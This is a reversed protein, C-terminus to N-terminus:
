PASGASRAAADRAAQVQQRSREMTQKFKGDLVLAGIAIFRGLWDRGGALAPPTMQVDHDTVVAWGTREIEGILALVQTRSLDYRAAFAKRSFRRTDGADLGRRLLELNLLAGGKLTQSREVTMGSKFAAGGHLTALLFEQSWARCQDRAPRTEAFAAGPLVMMGLFDDVLAAGDGSLRRAKLRRDQEEVPVLGEQRHLLKLMADVRNPSAVAAPVLKQVASVTIMPDLYRCAVAVRMQGQDGLLLKAGPRAAYFDLVDSCLDAAIADFRPDCAIRRAFASFDTEM